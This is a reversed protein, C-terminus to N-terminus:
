GVLHQRTAILLSSSIGKMEVNELLSAGEYTFREYVGAAAAESAGM